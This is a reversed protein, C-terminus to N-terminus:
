GTVAPERREAAAAVRQVLGSFILAHVPYLSYWYLWGPLGRPAFFATQVLRTGGGEQPAAEFQLWAKGPVKMEARLRLLRGPEVAEVRWFDLADGVRLDDPDRRGRRLGVGGLLRDLFGRAQWARTMYLWGRAGGLGTFVRFVQEATADVLQSRRETIMGEQSTLVVPRQHPRSTSLSDSWASEVTSAELRALARGVAERYGIPVIHPFLERALPDRVVNENRLGDILPRAIAAPIPTVVNVWYSSLRPTLVPVPVMWRKLGRVEAYITMMEGYTIVDAGGIEVIRDASRPEQVAAVLYDLVDRIAIPQTRTYVWRPCVMVPVRETLYRVMEFSLSGSGVIVGARFETVPVGAARLADGTQQRSRLHESLGPAPEALAGLYLLRGVGAARAARGFNEAAALDRRNFDAGSGMSHVLYCGVDTGELAPALTEPRLVDGEVVEVDGAWPRGQLRASDRVLCRVRHGAELLRPVLRGGVYGTAGTVLITDGATRM